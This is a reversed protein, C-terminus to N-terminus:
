FAPEEGTGALEDKVQRPKIEEFAPVRPLVYECILQLDVAPHPGYRYSQHNIDVPDIPTMNTELVTIQNHEFTQEPQTGDFGYFRHEKASCLQRIFPLVQAEDVVVRVEFQIVDIGKAEDTFRGTCPTTLADMTTKVYAPYEEQRRRRARRAGSTVGAQQLQFGVNMLRKVPSALVNPSNENMTRITTIVDEVVWYGLQWFWCEKYAENPDELKWEAWRGYGAVAAPSAYVKAARAKSTCIEEFIGREVEGMEQFSWQMGVRGAGGYPGGGGYTRAMRGGMGITPASALAAQIEGDTPRVGAQLGAIMTEVGQRYRQGFQEFLWVYTENTDRFLDYQLLERYVTQAMIQDIQNVDETYAGIYDEMAAAGGADRLQRTLSTIDKGVAVSNREVTERLRSSLLRTPIFLLVAVVAIIIPVLLGLNNKLFSLKKLIEAVNIDPKKM